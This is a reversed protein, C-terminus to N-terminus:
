LNSVFHRIKNKFLRNHDKICLSYFIKLFMETSKRECKTGSVAFGTQCECKGTNTDCESKSDINCANVDTSCEVSTTIAVLCFVYILIEYSYIKSNYTIVLIFILLAFAVNVYKTWFRWPKSVNANQEQIQLDLNAFV